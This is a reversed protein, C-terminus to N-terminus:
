GRDEPKVEMSVEPITVVLLFSIAMAVAGIIFVTRLSAELSDRTAQVTRKFLVEGGDDFAQFDRRLADMAKTSLLVRPDALSALTSQGAIRGLEPPLSAQLKESYSANMASGMVAPSVAMSLFVVFFMAAVAVGLLKKPFAFQALLTNMTPIAGIGIGAISTVVIGLWLATGARFFVICIMTIALTGYGVIYLAKFRKKWALLYGTPVGIFAMLVSLPTIIQGSLTASTGQVGQLFLLYYVSVGLLGFSSFFAAGAATLFTRNVLVQPALIPEAVKHEVWIFICWFATSVTLLGVIQMSSWAFVSGAWSFALITTSSALALLCSGLFDIKRAVKKSQPPIGILVFIAGILALALAIWFYDRWSTKDTVIGVFTPILLAAIGAPIQLLGTWKSRETPSFLDGVVSFCLPAIAGQGLALIVRAGIFFIFTESVACLISGVLYLFLCIALMVRRGYMDSLKGFILTVFATALAPLSIAWSFLPMGNLEAAIRPAAVTWGRFIYSSAFYTIFLAVLALGTRVRRQAQPEVAVTACSMLNEM